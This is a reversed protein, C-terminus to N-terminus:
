CLEPWGHAVLVAKVFIKLPYHQACSVGLHEAVIWGQEFAIVSAIIELNLLQALQSLSKSESGSLRGFM